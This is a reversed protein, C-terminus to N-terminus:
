KFGTMPLIRTIFRVICFLALQLLLGEILIVLLVVLMESIGEAWVVPTQDQWDGSFITGLVVLVVLSMTELLLVRKFSLSSLALVLTIPLLVVGWWLYGPPWYWNSSLPLIFYTATVLYAIGVLSLTLSNIRRHKM